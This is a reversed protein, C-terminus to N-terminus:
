AVDAHCWGSVIREVLLTDNWVGRIPLHEMGPRMAGVKWEKEGDWLWWNEVVGERNAIGSRFTPFAHAEVPIPENAVVRVIGRNCAAGLPFFALFQPTQRVLTATDKPQEPFVGPLVRLLAGFTPHKHTFHAYALGLPTPIEVVDGIKPRKRIARSM